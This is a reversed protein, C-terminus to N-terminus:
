RGDQDEKDPEPAEHKVGKAHEKLWQERAADQPEIVGRLIAICNDLHTLTMPNTKM